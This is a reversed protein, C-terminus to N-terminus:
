KSLYRMLIVCIQARTANATPALTTETMGNIIGNAIAWNMADKAYGSVKGADTYGALHDKAVAEAKAYRYLITVIQERTIKADPAYSTPSVGNVIGNDAAWVIADTNWAGDNV